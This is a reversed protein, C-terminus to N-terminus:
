SLDGSLVAGRQALLAQGIKALIRPNTTMGLACTLLSVLITTLNEDFNQKATLPPAPFLTRWFRAIRRRGRSFEKEQLTRAKCAASFSM